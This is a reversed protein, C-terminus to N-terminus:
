LLPLGPVSQRPNKFPRMLLFIVLGFVFTHLIVGLNKPCGEVTSVWGGLLGRMIQFTFPNFIIFAIIATQVSIHLKKEKSICSCSM